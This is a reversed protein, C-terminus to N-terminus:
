RRPTPLQKQRSGGFTGDSIDGCVELHRGPLAFDGRMPSWGSCQTSKSLVGEILCPRHSGSYHSCLLTVQSVNLLNCHGPEHWVLYTLTKPSLGLCLYSKFSGGGCSKLLREPNLFLVKMIEMLPNLSSCPGQSVAIESVLFDSLFHWSPCTVM